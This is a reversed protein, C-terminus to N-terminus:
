EGSQVSATSRPEEGIRASERERNVKDVVDQIAEPLRSLFRIRQDVKPLALESLVRRRELEQPTSTSWSPQTPKDFLFRATQRYQPEDLELWITRAGSQASGGVDYALDDGVHIWILSGDDEGDDNDGNPASPPDLQFTPKGRLVRQASHLEHYTEKAADYIWKLEANGSVSTLDSFFKTRGVQDDEWSACFDFHRALTFTMLMPNAKGDTVAGIIVGPHDRRIEELVPIVERYLHREAAHHREMEWANLVAQVISESVAEKAWRGM